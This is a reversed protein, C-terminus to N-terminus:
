KQGEDWPSFSQCLYSELLNRGTEVPHGLRRAADHLAAEFRARKTVSLADVLLLDDWCLRNLAAFKRIWQPNLGYKNAGGNRPLKVSPRHKSVSAKPTSRPRLNIALGNEAGTDSCDVSLGKKAAM